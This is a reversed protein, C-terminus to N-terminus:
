QLSLGPFLENSLAQWVGFQNQYIFRYSNIVTNRDDCWIELLEEFTAEFHAVQAHVEFFVLGKKPTEIHKALRLLAQYDVNDLREYASYACFKGPWAQQNLWSLHAKNFQKAFDTYHTNNLFEDHIDVGHVEAFQQYLQEHSLRDGGSEEAINDLLLQKAKENPAFNLTYWLFNHFHGRIHYFIAAFLRKQELNFAPPNTPSFLPVRAVQAVYGRDTEQLFNILQEKEQAIRVVVMRLNQCLTILIGGMLTCSFALRSIDLGLTDFGM